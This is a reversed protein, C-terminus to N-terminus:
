AAKETEPESQILEGDLPKTDTLNLLLQFKRKFDSADGNEATLDAVEDKFKESKLIEQVSYM